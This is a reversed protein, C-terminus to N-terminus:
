SGMGRSWRGAIAQPARFHGGADDPMGIWQPFFLMADHDHM